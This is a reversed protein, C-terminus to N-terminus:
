IPWNYVTNCQGAVAYPRYCVNWGNGTWANFTVSAGIAMGDLDWPINNVSLPHGEDVILSIRTEESLVAGASDTKVFKCNNSTFDVPAPLMRKKTLVVSKNPKRGVIKWTVAWKGIKVEAGKKAIRAFDLTMMDKSAFLLRVPFHTNKISEVALQM